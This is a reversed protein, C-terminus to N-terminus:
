FYHIRGKRRTTKEFQTKVYFDHRRAQEKHAIRKMVKRELPAFDVAQDITDFFRWWMKTNENLDSDRCELDREM